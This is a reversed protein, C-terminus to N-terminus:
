RLAACAQRMCCCCAAWTTAGCAPLSQAKSSTAASWSVALGAACLVCARQCALCIVGSLMPHNLALQPAPLLGQAVM